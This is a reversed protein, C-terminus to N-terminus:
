ARLSQLGRHIRVSVTNSSEGTMLAIDAPPLGLIFRQHLVNRYSHKMTNMKKIWRESDLKSDTQHWLDTASPEFGNDMLQDLSSERKKRVYDVILNHAIRYLFARTHLIEEQRQVCQWYRMFTEQALDQGVEQDRCEWLCYRTIAQRHLNYVATFDDIMTTFSFIIPLITTIHLTIGVGTLMVRSM